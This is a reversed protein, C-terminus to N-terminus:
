LCRYIPLGVSQGFIDWLAVDIASLGRSEAGMARFAMGQGLAYRHRAVERPDQGVLYPAAMQHIYGAVSDAGFFTEGLGVLGEDTHLQLWLLNPYTPTEITEVRTIKMNGGTGAVIADM